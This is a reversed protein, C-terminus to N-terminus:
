CQQEAVASVHGEGIEGLNRAERIALSVHQYRRLTDSVLPACVSVRRSRLSSQACGGSVWACMM